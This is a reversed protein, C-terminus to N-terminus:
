YTRVRPFYSFGIAHRLKRLKAEVKEGGDDEVFANQHSGHTFKPAAAGRCETM